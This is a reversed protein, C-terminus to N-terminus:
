YKTYWGKGDIVTQIRNPMSNLMAEFYGEPIEEWVKPLIEAL